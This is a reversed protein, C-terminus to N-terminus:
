HCPSLHAKGGALRVCRPPPPPPEGRARARSQLRAASAATAAAASSCCDEGAYIPPLGASVRQRSCYVPEYGDVPGIERSRTFIYLRPNDHICRTYHFLINEFQIIGMINHVANTMTTVVITFFRTDRSDNIKGTPYSLSLDFSLASFTRTYQFFTNFVRVIM